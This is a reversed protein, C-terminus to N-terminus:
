APRGRQTLETADNWGWFAAWVSRGEDRARRLFQLSALVEDMAPGIMLVSILATTLCLTCFTGLAIPQLIVLLVSGAGLPGVAFGFIIVAWPQTRWRSQGFAVGSIVDLLYGIAGLAADKIPFVNSIESTLIERSGDAFFPDWVTAVVDYQFLSLYGAIFFGVTALGAIPLRQKWASPNVDWGPPTQRVGTWDM